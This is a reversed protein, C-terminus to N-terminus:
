LVKEGGFADRRNSALLSTGGLAPFGESGKEPAARTVVRPLLTRILTVTIAGGFLTQDVHFLEPGHSVRIM